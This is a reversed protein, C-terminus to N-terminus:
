QWYSKGRRLITEPGKDGLFHGLLGKTTVRGVFTRSDPLTFRISTGDVQVPVIVPSNPEGEAEQVMAYFGHGYVIFVEMGVVDGAEEVYTMDSYLGKVDVKSPSGAHGLSAFATVIVLAKLKSKANM